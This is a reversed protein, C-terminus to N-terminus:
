FHLKCKRHTDSPLSSESETGKRSIASWFPFGRFIGSLSFFTALKWQENARGAKGLLELSLSGLTHKIPHVKQGVTVDATLIGAKISKAIFSIM